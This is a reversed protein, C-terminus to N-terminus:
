TRREVEEFEQDTLSSFGSHTGPTFSRTVWDQLCEPIQSEWEESWPPPAGMFLLTIYNARNMPVKHKKMLVIIDDEDM